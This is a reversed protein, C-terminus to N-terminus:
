SEGGGQKKRHVVIDTFPFDAEAPCMLLFLSGQLVVKFSKLHEWFPRNQLMAWSEMELNLGMSKRWLTSCNLLILPPTKTICGQWRYRLQM